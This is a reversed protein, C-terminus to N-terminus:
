FPSYSGADSCDNAGEKQLRMSRLVPPITMAAFVGRRQALHVFAYAGTLDFLEVQARHVSRHRLSGIHKLCVQALVFAGVRDINYIVWGLSIERYLGAVAHKGFFVAIRQKLDLKKRASRVLYACMHRMDPVRQETLAFVADVAVVTAGTVAM